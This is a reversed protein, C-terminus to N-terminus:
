TGGPTFRPSSLPTLHGPQRISRAGEDGHVPSETHHAQQLTPYGDASVRGPVGSRLGSLQGSGASAVLAAIAALPLATVLCPLPGVRLQSGRWRVSGHLRVGDSRPSMHTQRPRWSTPSPHLRAYTWRSACIVREALRPPSGLGAGPLRSTMCLEVLVQLRRAATGVGPTQGPRLRCVLGSDQGRHPLPAATLLPPQAVRVVSQFAFAQGCRFGCPQLM